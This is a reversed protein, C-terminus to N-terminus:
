GDHQASLVQTIDALVSTEFRLPDNMISPDAKKHDFTMQYTLSRIRQQGQDARDTRAKKDM